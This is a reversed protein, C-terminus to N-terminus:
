SIQRTGDFFIYDSQQSEESNSCMYLYKPSVPWKIDDGVENLSSM